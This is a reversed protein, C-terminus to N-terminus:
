DSGGTASRSDIHIGVTEAAVCHYIYRLGLDKFLCKRDELDANLVVRCSGADRNVIWYNSNENM